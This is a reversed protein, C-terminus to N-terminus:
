DDIEDSNKISHVSYQGNELKIEYDHYAKLAPRLSVTIITVGIEKAHEYLFREIDVSVASTSEDLIAYKPRHYFLRAMSLRQQEGLSLCDDWNAITNWGYRHIIKEIDVMKLLGTLLEESCDKPDVNQKPYTIQDRLTGVCNYPKTTVYYVSQMPDSGSSGPKTITGNKIPWLGQVMRFLSSKGVANPGTLLYNKGPTMEININTLLKVNNPTVLDVGEFKLADGEIINSKTAEGKYQRIKDLLDSINNTYGTM